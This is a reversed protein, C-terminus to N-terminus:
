RAAGFDVAALVTGRLSARALRSGVPRLVIPLASPRLTVRLVCDVQTGPVLEPSFRQLLCALALKMEMNALAAGVCVRPGTGFPLYEYPTPQIRTWREPDFRLPDAYVESMRHTLFHAVLLVSGEPIAHGGLEVDTRALRGGYPATPLIRLSEKVVRDLLPLAGLQEVTPAEGRLVGALEEQLPGLVSPHAALLMLTWSLAAYTTEHGATLLVFIQGLLAEDSLAQTEAQGAILESLVDAGPASRRAAILERADDIFHQALQLMRHYPTGPLDVPAFMVSRRGLAHLLEGLQGRFAQVERGGEEVDLGFIVALIVGLTFRQLEDPADIRQGVKWPRLMAEVREVIVDRYQSVRKRHFPPVMVRRHEKHAEGTATFPNQSLVELPSGPRAALPTVFSEFHEREMLLRQTLEPGWACLVAPHRDALAVLRDPYTSLQQLGAFPDAFFRLLNGRWGLGRMRAPGRVDIDRHGWAKYTTAAM